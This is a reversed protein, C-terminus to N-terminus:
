LLLLLRVCCIYATITRLLCVCCVYAAFTRLLRVCCVYAAFIHLFICSWLWFGHLLEHLPSPFLCTLSCNRQDLFYRSRTSQHLLLLCRPSFEDILLQRSIELVLLLLVANHRHYTSSNEPHISPLKTTHVQSSSCDTKYVSLCKDAAGCIRNKGCSGPGTCYRTCIGDVCELGPCQSAASCSM